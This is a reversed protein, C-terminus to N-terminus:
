EYLMNALLLKRLYELISITSSILIKMVSFEQVMKSDYIQREVGDCLPRQGRKCPNANKEKEFILIFFLFSFAIERFHFSRTM